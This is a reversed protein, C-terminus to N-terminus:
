MINKTMDALIGEIETEDNGPSPIDDFLKWTEIHQVMASPELLTLPSLTEMELMFNNSYTEYSVGFDPYRANPIHRYHKMFLHNNNFYAAWGHENSTGIKFPRDIQSDQRLIIYKGGFYVRSDNLSSYPWLSMVRNPLLGTDKITQPIVEKGGPAMASISWVSLEVPSKGKNTLRHLISVETSGSALTIEMEKSIGTNPETAQLTHIGNEIKKWEVPFNDPEYTRIRDEPSHWLRHGGYIRWEDGGTLGLTSEVECFENEKGTLGYRIVRPGVDATIVLDVIGNTIRICHNWGRYATKNVTVKQM